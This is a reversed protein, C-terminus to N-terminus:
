ETVGEFGARTLLRTLDAPPPAELSLAEGTVPHTLALRWAHLALRRWVRGAAGGHRRDGLLPHQAESAHRRIQHTRGTELSVELTSMGRGTGLRRWRTAAPQGDIPAEWRGAAGPDGLVVALYTRQVTHERFAEALGRNAARHLAMLILGSAPTDLRHHLAVYGGSGEARRALDYLNAGGGRPSQSPLGSPKDLILLWPDRYIEQLEPAGDHNNGHNNM